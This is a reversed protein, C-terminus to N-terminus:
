AASGKKLVQAEMGPVNKVKVGLYDALQEVGIQNQHYRSFAKDVYRDSLYVGMTLYYNGGPKRAKTAKRWATVREKYYSQTVADGM